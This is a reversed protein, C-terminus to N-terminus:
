PKPLWGKPKGLLRRDAVLKNNQHSDPFSGWSRMGVFTNGSIDIKAKMKLTGFTTKVRDFILWSNRMTFSSNPHRPGKCIRPETGFAISDNNDSNPGKQIVVSDLLVTGGCPLDVERSNRSNLSLLYSKLVTTKKARSKLIHGLHHSRRLTSNRVMLSDIVGAYILHMPERGRTHGIDEIITDEVVLRGGRNDTLIGMEANAIRSNRVTVDFNIGEIKVGACNRCRVPFRTTYNDLVVPGRANKILIVGKRATKGMVRVGTLDLTIAKNITVGAPYIGPPIKVTSGPASADIYRQLPLKQVPTGKANVPHKYVWLGDRPDAYALYVDHQPVRVWRSLIRTAGWEPAPGKFEFLAWKDAEPDYTNTWSGGGWLILKGDAMLELGAHGNAGAGIRSQLVSRRAGKTLYLGNGHVSWVTDRKEDYIATGPGVLGRRGIGKFQLTKPDFVGDGREAGVFFWGNPLEATRFYRPRPGAAIRARYQWSLPALGNRNETPSPNFEWVDGYGYRWKRNCLTYATPFNWLTETKSSFILGDFTQSSPPDTKDIECDPVSRGAQDEKKPNGGSPDTLRTWRSKTLDFEYVENGGYDTFGGGHFYMKMRKQDFAAGSYGRVIADPGSVRFQAKTLNKPYVDSISAGALKCWGGDSKNLRALCTDFNVKATKSRVDKPKGPARLKKGDESFWEKFFGKDQALAPGALFSYAFLIILAPHIHKLM